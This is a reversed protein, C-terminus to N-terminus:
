GSGALNSGAHKINSTYIAEPDIPKLQYLDGTFLMHVGGFHKSQFSNRLVPHSTQTGKAAIQRESIENLTQLNILSIEDLVILKVGSIKSGVAQACEKSMNCVKSKKRIRGKGYVSQWTYGGIVSAAAGTPAVALASGYLGKQNGHCIHTYEM